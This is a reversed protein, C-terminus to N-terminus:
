NIGGESPTRISSVYDIGRYQEVIQVKKNPISIESRLQSSHAPLIIRIEFLIDYESLEIYYAMVTRICETYVYQIKM